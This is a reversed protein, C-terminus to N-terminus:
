DGAAASPESRPPPWGARERNAEEISRFKRVGPPLRRSTFHAAFAWLRRIRDGVDASGSPVWLARRADDM